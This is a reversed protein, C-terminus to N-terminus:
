IVLQPPEFIDNVGAFLVPSRCLSMPKLWTPRHQSLDVWGVTASNQNWIAGKSPSKATATTRLNAILSCQLPAPARRGKLPTLYTFSSRSTLPSTNTWNKNVNIRERIPRRHDTNSTSRTFSREIAIPWLQLQLQWVVVTEGAIM